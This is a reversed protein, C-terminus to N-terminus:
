NSWSGLYQAIMENTGTHKINVTIPFLGGKDDANGPCRKLINGANHLAIKGDHMLGRINGQVTFVIEKEMKKLIRAQIENIHLFIFQNLSKTPAARGKGLYKENQWICRLYSPGYCQNCTKFISLQDALKKQISIKLVSKSKTYKM